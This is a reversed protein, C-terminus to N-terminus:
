CAGLLARHDSEYIASLLSGPQARLREHGVLLMNGQGVLPTSAQFARCLSLGLMQGIRLLASRQPGSRLPCIEALQSNVWPSYKLSKDYGM